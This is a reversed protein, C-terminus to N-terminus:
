LIVGQENLQGIDDWTYGLELLIEETHQGVEPAPEMTSPPNQPFKVPTAVLRSEGAVPHDITPFFDNAKAQPDDIVELPTDVRGYIVNHKRFIEEWENRNKTDFVNDMISILEECNEARVRSINFRPDMQLEPKDMALCLDPWSLDSQLMALWFWRDDRAHYNNWLPNGAKARDHRGLEVGTALAVQMDEALTWVGTQYLSFEVEQGKGTKERHLLAALVGGVVHSAVARDMMGGRQPIPIGDPEAMLHMIGSRAWAAAYDFGREDKDPGVKGYGTLVGYVIRPNVKSLTEYDMELNKLASLEYNSIFIDSTQVLKYLIDKGAQQKLDLALCKKNRNLLQFRWNVTPTDMAQARVLGRYMEGTLPEVKIVEAGWDALTAGAAPVAVVHGMDIVRIGELVGPM